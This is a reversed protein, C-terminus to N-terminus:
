LRVARVVLVVEHNRQRRLTRHCLFSHHIDERPELDRPAGGGSADVELNGYGLHAAFLLRGARM